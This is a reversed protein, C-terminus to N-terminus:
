SFKLAETISQFFYIKCNKVVFIQYKEVTFNKLNQDYFVQADPDLDDFGPDPDPESKIIIIRFM